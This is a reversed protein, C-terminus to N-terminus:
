HCMNEICHNCVMRKTMAMIDCTRGDWVEGQCRNGIDDDNEGVNDDKEHNEHYKFM